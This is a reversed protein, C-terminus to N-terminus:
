KADDFVFPLERYRELDARDGVIVNDELTLWAHAELLSVDDRTVGIHLLTQYGCSKFLVSGALAKSLCTPAPIFSSAADLLFAVRSSSVSNVQPPEQSAAKRSFHRVVNKFQKFQFSSRSHVLLLLARLFLVKEIQPLCFFKRIRGM